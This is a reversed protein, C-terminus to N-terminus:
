NASSRGGGFLKELGFTSEIIVILILSFVIMATSISAALPDFNTQSYYFLKVPLLEFTPTVFFIAFAVGDFAVIFALIGASVIGSRIQPLTVRLFAKLKTAGLDEAAYEQDMNFGSLTAIAIRLVFPLVVVSFGLILPIPGPGQGIAALTVLLALGTLLVPIFLPATGLLTFFSKGPFNFRVIAISAPVGILLAIIAALGAVLLSNGFAQIFDAHHPLDTFWRFSWGHEWPFSVFGAATFSILVVIVLPSLVFLVVIIGIVPGLRGMIKNENM